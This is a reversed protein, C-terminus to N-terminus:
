KRKEWDYWCCERLLFETSENPESPSRSTCTDSWCCDSSMEWSDSLLHAPQIAKEFFWTASLQLWASLTSPFTFRYWRMYYILVDKFIVSLYFQSYKGFNRTERIRWDEMCMSFTCFHSLTMTGHCCCNNRTPGRIGVIPCFPRYIQFPIGSISFLM